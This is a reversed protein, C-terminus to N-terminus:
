PTLAGGLVLDLRRRDGRVHLRPDDATTRRWLLLLLADAPGEVSVPPEPGRLVASSGTDSAQLLVQAAAPPCRGKRVQRPHLVDVVEAVGDSALPADVPTAVGAAREADVRHVLTELAQRRQWWRVTAPGAFTWCPRDPTADLAACLDAVGTDLWDALGEDGPVPADDAAPAGTRVVAAAWRHVQGVLGALDRLAWGSCAAVPAGPDARRVAATLLAGERALAEVHDM